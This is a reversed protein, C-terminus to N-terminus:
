LLELNMIYPSGLLDESIHIFGDESLIVGKRLVAHLERVNGPWSHELITNLSASTLLEPDYNQSTLFAKTLELIDEKHERLPPLELTLANIRYYLDQRFRGSAMETPLDRNTASIIRVDIKIPTTSGVPTITGEELVRLLKPQLRPDMDGIEDLFLTGGDSSLFLGKHDKHADTFAGKVHGFLVSEALNEPLAAMNVANFPGSRQSLKHILKASIEKGTGSEGTIIVADRHSAYTLIKRRVRHMQPSRGILIEELTDLSRSLYPASLEQVSEDNRVHSVSAISQRPDQPLSILSGYVAQLLERMMIPREIMVAHYNKQLIFQDTINRGSILLLFPINPHKTELHTILDKLPADCVSDGLCVIDPKFTHIEAIGRNATRCFRLRILASKPIPLDARSTFRDIILIRLLM